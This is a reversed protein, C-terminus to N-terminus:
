EISILVTGVLVIGTLLFIGTMRSEIKASEYEALLAPQQFPATNNLRIKKSGLKACIYYQADFLAFLIWANPPVISLIM